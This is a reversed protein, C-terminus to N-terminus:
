PQEVVARFIREICDDKKSEFERDLAALADEKEKDFAAMRRRSAEQVEARLSELESQAKAMAQQKAAAYIQEHTGSLLKERKEAADVRARADRDAQVIAHLMQRDDM